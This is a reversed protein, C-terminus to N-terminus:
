IAVLRKIANVKDQHSGHQVIVRAHFDNTLLLASVMLPRGFLLSPPLPGPLSASGCQFIIEQFTPGNTGWRCIHWIFILM